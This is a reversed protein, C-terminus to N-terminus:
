RSFVTQYNVLYTGSAEFLYYAFYAGFILVVWLLKDWRDSRDYEKKKFLAAFMYAWFVTNYIDTYIVMRGLYASHRAALIIAASALSFTAYFNIDRQDDESIQPKVILVYFITPIWAVLVRFISISKLSYIDVVFEKGQLFSILDWIYDYGFSLVIGAVFFLAIKNFNFQRTPMWYFLIFVIASVHFLSAFLCLLLWKGFKREKIYRHGCFLIAAAASQRVSNFSEHWCGLFLYMMISASWIPSTKAIGFICLGVTILSMLVFMTAYDDYILRAIKAVVRIGPEDFFSLESSYYAPYYLAYSSYDAGVRYRLGAFFILVTATIIIILKDASLTGKTATLSQSVNQNQLMLSLFVTFLIIGLYVLM